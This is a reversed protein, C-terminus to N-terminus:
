GVASNGVAGVTWANCMYQNVEWDGMLRCVMKDNYSTQRRVWRLTEPKHVLLGPQQAALEAAETESVGLLRALQKRHQTLEKMPMTLLRPLKTVLVRIRQEPLHLLKAVQAVQDQLLYLM